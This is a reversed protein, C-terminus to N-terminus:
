IIHREALHWRNPNVPGAASQGHRQSQERRVMTSTDDKLLDLLALVRDPNQDLWAVRPAWPLRLRTGESVLRRVHANTDTAWTQLFGLAREPDGAIYPRISAEASFRKTLEYQARM